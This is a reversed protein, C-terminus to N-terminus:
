PREVGLGAGDRARDTRRTGSPAAHGRATWNGRGRFIWLDTGCWPELQRDHRRLRRQSDRGRRGRRDRRSADQMAEAEVRDTMDLMVGQWAVVQGTEDRVPVCEDRVWVYSGDRRQHRYEARFPEGSAVTRADEAAIRARDEPHVLTLWHSPYALAEEPSEGTLHRIFPSYYLPTQRDDAALEYVVVPLQEVLTRFKAESARLEENLRRSATVDCFFASLGDASPYVRVQYWGDLPPYYFEVSVTIGEHMARQCAAYVPTEVAPTFAEWVNAGLLDHRSIVWCTNPQRM